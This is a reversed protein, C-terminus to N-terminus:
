DLFIIGPRHITESRRCFKSWDALIRRWQATTWRPTWRRDRYVHSRQGVAACEVADDDGDEACLSWHSLHRCRVHGTLATNWSTSVSASMRALIATDTDTDNDTNHFAAKLIRVTNLRGDAAAYHLATQDRGGCWKFCRAWYRESGTNSSFHTRCSLFFTFFAYTYNWLGHM